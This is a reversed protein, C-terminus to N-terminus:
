LPTVFIDDVILESRGASFKAASVGGGYTKVQLPLGDVTAIISSQSVTVELIQWEGVRFPLDSSVAINVANKSDGVQLSPLGSSVSSAAWIRANFRFPTATTINRSFVAGPSLHTSNGLDGAPDAVISVGGESTWGTTTLDDFHSIWTPIKTGAGAYFGLNHYVATPLSFFDIKADGPIETASDLAPTGSLLLYAKPDRLAPAALRPAATTTNTAAPFADIPGDFINNTVVFATSDLDWTAVGAGEKRIINDTFLVDLSATTDAMVITPSIGDGIQITNKYIKGGVLQGDCIEVIRTRDNVSLNYRITFNSTPKDYPCILFFGGENDHSVNYEFVTGSSSHDVDYSMGSPVCDIFADSYKNPCSSDSVM